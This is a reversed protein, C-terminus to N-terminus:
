PCTFYLISKSRLVQEVPCERGNGLRLTVKQNGNKEPVRIIKQYDSNHIITAPAGDVLVAANRWPSDIELTVEIYKVSPPKPRPGPDKKAVAQPPPSEVPHPRVVETTDKVQDHTVKEISDKQVVVSAKDQRNGRFYFWWVSSLGLLLLVALAWGLMNRRAPGLPSSAQDVLGLIGDNIRNIGIELEAQSLVGRANDSRLRSYRSQLSLASRKLHHISHEEAYQSLLQIAGQTNALGLLQAINSKLEPLTM